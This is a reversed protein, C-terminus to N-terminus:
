QQNQILQQQVKLLQEKMSIHNTSAEDKREIVKYKSLKKRAAELKKQDDTPQMYENQQTSEVAVLANSDIPVLSNQQDIMQAAQQHESILNGM